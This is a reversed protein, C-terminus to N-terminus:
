PFHHSGGETWKRLLGKWSRIDKLNEEVKPEESRVYTTKGFIEKKTYKILDAGCQECVELEFNKTQFSCSPCENFSPGSVIKLDNFYGPLNLTTGCQECYRISLNKITVNCNPCQM